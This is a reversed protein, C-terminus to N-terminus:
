LPIIGDVFAIETKVPKFSLQDGSSSQMTILTIFIFIAFYIIVVMINKLFIKWYLKFVIM